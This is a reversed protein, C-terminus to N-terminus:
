GGTKRRIKKHWNTWENIKKLVCVICKLDIVCLLMAIIEGLVKYWPPIRVRSRRKKLRVRHGSHWVAMSRQRMIFLVKVAKTPLPVYRWFRGQQSLKWTGVTRIFKSSRFKVCTCVSFIYMRLLAM